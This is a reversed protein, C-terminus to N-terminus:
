ESESITYIEGNIVVYLDCYKRGSYRVTRTYREGTEIVEVTIREGEIPTGDIIRIRAM